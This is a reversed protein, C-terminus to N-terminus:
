LKSLYYDIFGASSRVALPVMANRVRENEENQTFWTFPNWFIRNM